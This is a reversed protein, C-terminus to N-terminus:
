RQQSPAQVKSPAQKETGKGVVGTTKTITKTPPKDETKADKKVPGTKTGTGPQSSNSEQILEDM